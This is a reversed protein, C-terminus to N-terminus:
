DLFKISVVPHLELGSKSAGSQGHLVDFFGIGSLLVHRKCKTFSTKPKLQAEFEQRCDSILGWFPSKHTVVEPDPLEVIMTPGNPKSHDRIVVHIDQDDSELKYRIIDADIQYVTTEIPPHRESDLPGTQPLNKTRKIHGITEVTTPLVNLPIISIAKSDAGTKVAWREKTKLFEAAKPSDPLRKWAPGHPVDAAKEASCGVLFCGFVLALWRFMSM